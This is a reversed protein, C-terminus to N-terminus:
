DDPQFVHFVLAGQLSGAWNLRLLDLSPRALYGEQGIRVGGYPCSCAIRFVEIFSGSLTPEVPM